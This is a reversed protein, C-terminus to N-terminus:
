KTEPDYLEVRFEKDPEWQEDDIIPIEVEDWEDGNEFTLIKDIPGYDKGPQAGGASEVTRVGIKAGKAKTKNHIKIRIFGSSESVAM